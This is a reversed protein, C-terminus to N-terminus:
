AAARAIFATQGEHRADFLYWSANDKGTFKSDPIWKVRGVSIIMRCRDMYPAAQKTHMWDADLLLWTPRIDSLHMILPHLIPRSWPPNTIFLDAQTGKQEFADRRHIGCWQPEIDTASICVHGHRELHRILAGDGACPENFSVNAPLHPLLPLVAEYPTPYFDHKNRKFDSRKGM